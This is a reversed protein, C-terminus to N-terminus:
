MGIGAFFVAFLGDLAIVLFINFLEKAAVFSADFISGLAAVFNGSWALVVLFTAIVSPVVVNARLLMTIIIAAVGVLYIWHAPLLEVTAGM